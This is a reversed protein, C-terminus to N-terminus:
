IGVTDLNLTLCRSDIKSVGINAGLKPFCVSVMDDGLALASKLPLAGAGPVQVEGLVVRLGYAVVRGEDLIADFFPAPASTAMEEPPVVAIALPPPSWPFM